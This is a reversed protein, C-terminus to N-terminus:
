AAEAQPRFWVPILELVGKGAEAVSRRLLTTDTYGAAALNERTM